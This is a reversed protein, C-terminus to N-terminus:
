YQTFGVLGQGLEVALLLGAARVTRNPAGSARLGVLLGITLGILVMVADAHLQSVAEPDLGTRAAEADGSHPGSGTVMTGLYVVLVTVALVGFALTRLPRAVVPQVPGDGEGVRRVLAVALGVLVMSCLLHLAVVWPNLDTLVTMGGIVAQAPVGLALATAYGRLSRRAPRYRWAAILTFVVVAGLVFTLMRNGFEIAGHLGAEPRVVYDADTCRPWTPCGLGSETLRVAGGTVIIGINAILAAIAWGRMARTSPYWFSALARRYWSPTPGPVSRGTTDTPPASAPSSETASQDPM